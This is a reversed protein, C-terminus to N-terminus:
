DRNEPPVSARCARGRCGDSVSGNPKWFESKLARVRPINPTDDHPDHGMRPPVNPAPSRPSGTDWLWYSSGSFPYRSITDLMAEPRRQVLRGPRAIPTHASVGITAAEVRLSFESVQHDGVAGILMVRHRPTKPLPDTTMHNAYGNAEGRDWLLQVVELGIVRDERAPYSPRMVNLYEDFDVSRDLLISYNMGAEALVSRTFDTAVATLAGGLIAGQSNGDYYLARRDIAPRGDVQFAVNTSFGQPHVMARGLFLFALIGQHLRDALSPFKSLDQLIAAANGIDDEAMGYWDTACYAINHDAAMRQTLSGNVESQDGLLGHGYLVLRAPTTATSEPLNCTYRATFTGPQRQPVGETDLVLRSGPAGGDTLYLPMEFTGEIRRAFFENPRETVTDVTVRPAASGLSGFADDRISLMRGTLSQTSAVTFDWALQLSGRRVGARTLSAFVRNMRPRRSEFTANTTRQGDRYAAFGATARIRRGRADRLNRLGVVIRHGDAFNRAPHVMLLPPEGPDPQADLEAWFPHRKGTTADILVVSADPALSQSWDRISPLRSRSADLRPIQALLTSGPSWGDALNQDSVDIRVGATNAPMSASDLALRRGTPTDPDVKTFTDNPLPLLCGRGIPDCRSITAPDVGLRDLAVPAADAQPLQARGPSSPLAAGASASASTLVGVVVILSMWGRRDISTQKM